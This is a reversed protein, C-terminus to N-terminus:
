AAASENLLSELAARCYDSEGAKIARNVACLWQLATFTAYAAQNVAAAVAPSYTELVSEGTARRVVIWSGCHPELPPIM